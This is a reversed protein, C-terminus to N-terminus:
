SYRIASIKQHLTYTQGAPLVQKESVGGPEIAIMKLYEEAGFDDMTKARDAWPNWVVLDTKTATGNVSGAKDVRVTYDFNAGTIPAEVRDPANYYVNDTQSTISIFDRTETKNTKTVKDYYNVGKLDTVVVGNNRVDNVEIYNHLLAHFDIDKTFTNRVQLTTELQASWLKVDYQLEFDVPWLKRTSDSSAMTFTAVSSRTEDAAQEVSVLTWNTTRAFGHSPLGTASGFNPFVIPIGGRIPNVGDLHSRNSM